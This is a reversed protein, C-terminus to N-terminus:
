NLYFLVRELTIYIRTLFFKIAEGISKLAEENKDLAAFVDSMKHHVAGITKHYASPYKAKLESGWELAKQYFKLSDEYRHLSYAVEGQDVHIGIFKKSNWRGLSSADLTSRDVRLSSFSLMMDISKSRIQAMVDICDGHLIQNDNVIYSEKNKLNEM